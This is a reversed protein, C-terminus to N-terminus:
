PRINFVTAKGAMVEVPSSFSQFGFRGQPDNPYDDDGSEDWESSCSFAIRYNGSPIYSFHYNYEGTAPDITVQDTAMPGERQDTNAESIDDPQQADGPFLYAWNGGTAPDCDPHYIDILSMDVTGELSGAEEVRIFRLGPHLEYTAAMMGGRDHRQVIRRLDFDLVFENHEGENITFPERVRLADPDGLVMGYQGGAQLQIHSRDVDVGLQIWQYRGPALRAGDILVQSIGNQLAIMDVAHPGLSLEEKIVNGDQAGFNIHTIHLQLEEAEEMPGDTISITVTGSSQPTVDDVVSAGGGSSGGGCGVLGIPLLIALLKLKGGM